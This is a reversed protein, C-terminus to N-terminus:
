SGFIVDDLFTPIFQQHTLMIKEPDALQELISTYKEEGYRSIVHHKKEEQQLYKHMGAADAEPHFQAGLFHENFRIAMVARELPVHPREKEIALVEAGLAELREPQPAIVQWQRSDVIYFPDPLYRFTDEAQGEGTRHVPFVGFAPSKRECVTGLGFYRCMLQFSHCIFLMPKKAAERENWELLAQVFGFYAEEWRSGESELPSGPGGTSLYIDYSLDPVLQQQRVEYEQVELQLGHAAGYNRLIERICRMGENPVGEYMDLVAVKWHQKIAQKM